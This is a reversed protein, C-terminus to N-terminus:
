FMFNALYLDALLTLGPVSLCMVTVGMMWMCVCNQVSFGFKKQSVGEATFIKWKCRSYHKHSQFVPNKAPVILNHAM